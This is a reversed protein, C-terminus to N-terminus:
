RRHGRRRVRSRSKPSAALPEEQRTSGWNSPSLPRPTTLRHDPEDAAMVGNTMLRKIVEVPTVSLLDGLEKVTLAGPLQIARAAPSAPNATM